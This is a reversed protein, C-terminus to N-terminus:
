PSTCYSFISDRITEAVGSVAPAMLHHPESGAFWIVDVNEKEIDRLIVFKSAETEVTWDNESIFLQTPIKLKEAPKGKLYVQRGLEKIERACTLPIKACYSHRDRKMVLLDPFRSLAYARDVTINNFLLEVIGDLLRLHKGLFQIFYPSILHVSKLSHPVQHHIMFDQLLLGGTSFGVARVEEFSDLVLSLQNQMEQRWRESSFANSIESSAGHGPILFGVVTWGAKIFPQALYLMENPSGMYGHALFLAKSVLPNGEIWQAKKTESMVHKKELAAYEDYLNQNRRQFEKRAEERKIKM